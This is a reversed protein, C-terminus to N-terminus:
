VMVTLVGIVYENACVLQEIEDKTATMTIFFICCCFMIAIIDTVIVNVLIFFRTESRLLLLVLTMMLIRILDGVVIITFFQWTWGKTEAIIREKYKGHEERGKNMVNVM